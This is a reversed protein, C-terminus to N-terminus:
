PMALTDENLIVHTVLQGSTKARKAMGLRFDGAGGSAVVLSTGNDWQVDAGASFTTGSATTIEFEGRTAASYEEGSAVNDNGIVVAARGDVLQHVQGPVLAAAAVCQEVQFVTVPTAQKAM